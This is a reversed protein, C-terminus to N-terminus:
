LHHVEDALAQLQQQFKQNSDLAQQLMASHDPPMHYSDSLRPHKQLWTSTEMHRRKGAATSSEAQPSPRFNAIEAPHLEPTVSKPSTAAQTLPMLSPTGAASAQPTAGSMYSWQSPHLSPSHQSVSQPLPQPQSGNPWYSFQSHHVPQHSGTSWPTLQSPLPSTFFQTAPPSLTAMVRQPSYPTLYHEPRCEPYQLLPSTSAPVDDDGDDDDDDDDDNADSMDTDEQMSGLDSVHLSRNLPITKHTPASSARPPAPTPVLLVAPQQMMVSVLQSAATPDQEVPHLTKLVSKISESSKCGSCRFRRIRFNGTKAQDKRFARPFPLKCKPNECRDPWLHGYSAILREAELRMDDERWPFKPM